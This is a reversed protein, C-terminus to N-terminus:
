SAMAAPPTDSKSEHEQVGRAIENRVWASLEQGNQYAALQARRKLDGGIRVVMQGMRERRLRPVPKERGKAM